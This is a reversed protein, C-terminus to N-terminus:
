LLFIQLYIYAFLSAAASTALKEIIYPFIPLDTGQLVSMTQLIACWGGFAVCSICLIYRVPFLLDMHWLLSIGNTIELNSLLLCDTWASQLPLTKLLETVACFLMIYGGIKVITEMASALSLDLAKSFPDPVHATDPLHISPCPSNEALRYTSAKTGRFYYIRSLFSIFVPSLFLILFTPMLLRPEQFQQHVVYSLIFAPSTNNCFSLLYASENKSLKGARYLDATVKAGMPYGCLFGTLVSFMGTQSVCFFRCFCGPVLRAFLRVADTRVLLGCLFLFPFLTPLVTKYWLLLGKSAGQFVIDPKLLMFLFFCFLFLPLIYHSRHKKSFLAM